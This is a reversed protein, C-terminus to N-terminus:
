SISPFTNSRPVYILYMVSVLMPIMVPEDNDNDNSLSEPWWISLNGDVVLSGLSLQVESSAEVWEDEDENDLIAYGISSASLNEYSLDSSLILRYIERRKSRLFQCAILCCLACNEHMLIQQPDDLYINGTADRCATNGPNPDREETFLANLSEGVISCKECLDGAGPHSSKWVAFRDSIELELKRITLKFDEISPLEEKPLAKEESLEPSTENVKPM